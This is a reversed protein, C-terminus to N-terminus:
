PFQGPWIRGAPRGALDPRDAQRPDGGSHM